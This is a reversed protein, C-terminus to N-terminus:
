SWRLYLELAASPYGFKSHTIRLHKVRENVSQNILMVAKTLLAERQM